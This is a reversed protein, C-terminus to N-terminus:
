FTEVGGLFGVAGRHETEIDGDGAHEHRDDSTRGNEAAFYPAEVRGFRLRRRANALDHLDVASHRDDRVTEPGRLEPALRQLDIPIFSRESFEVTSGLALLVRRERLLRTRDGFFLSIGGRR